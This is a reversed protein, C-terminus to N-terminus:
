QRELQKLGREIRGKWYSRFVGVNADDPLLVLAKRYAKEAGSSDGSVALAKSTSRGTDGLLAQVAADKPYTKEVLPLARLATAVDDDDLLAVIGFVMKSEALEPSARLMARAEEAGHQRLYEAMQRQTPPVPAAPKFQLRLRGDRASDGASRSLFARAEPRQNLSAELFNLVVESLRDYSARRANRVDPWKEPLLAPRIAGHTLYDNHTLSRVTAEYRPVFRLYPDLYEFHPHRESALYEFLVSNDEYTGTTGPHYLIVPFRGSAAPADKVAFTRTNLLREFARREAPTMAAPEHGTTENAVVRRMAGELRRAFPELPGPGPSIDLYQGYSMRGAGSPEAPYWIGIMIPRPRHVPLRTPDISFEPDYERSHDVTSVLRFGVAHPGAELGGWLLPAQARASSVIVLAAVALRRFVASVFSAKM